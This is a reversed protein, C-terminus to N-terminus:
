ELLNVYYASLTNMQTNIDFAGGIIRSLPEKRDSDAPATLLKEVWLDKDLQLFEANGTANAIEPLTDAALVRLGSAQAEVAALGLGEFLSPLVFMDMASLYAAPESTSGAFTVREGIGLKKAQQKASEQLEGTGVLLLRTDANRKHVESFVDILFSHNKVATFRGVHGIVREDRIGHLTRIRERQKEDYKFKEPDIANNIITAGHNKGYLFSAAEDSCAMFGNAVRKIFRTLMWNRIRKWFIDSYKTSHSHIIRHPVTKRALGLYFISSNAVHGHIIRYDSTKYFQKLASIYRFLNAAKLAPMVYIESGRSEIYARADADPEENLMFDFTLRNADLKAYYNMVVNSVGSDVSIKDLVHLIRIGM